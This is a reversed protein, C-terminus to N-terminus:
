GVNRVKQFRSDGVKQAVQFYKASCQLISCGGPRVRDVLNSLATEARELGLHAITHTSIVLDFQRNKVPSQFHVMDDYYFYSLSDDRYDDVAQAILVRNIDVGHYEKGKFLGRFKAGASACDLVTYFPESDTIARRFLQQFVIKSPRPSLYM